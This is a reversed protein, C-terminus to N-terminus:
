KNKKEKLLTGLKAFPSHTMTDTPEDAMGDEGTEEDYRGHEADHCYVCLNEWNSGDPPNNKHNHDKHHVTLMQLNKLTFERGCRACVWPHIRLSQERYGKMREANAQRAKTIVQDMEEKSLKTGKPKPPKSSKFEM